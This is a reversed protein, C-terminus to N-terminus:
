RSSAPRLPPLTEPMPSTPTLYLNAFESEVKPTPFADSLNDNQPDVRLVERMFIEPDYKALKVNIMSADIMVAQVTEDSHDSRTALATAMRRTATNHAHVTHVFRAHYTFPDVRKHVEELISGTARFNLFVVINRVVVLENALVDTLLDLTLELATKDLPPHALWGPEEELKYEDCNFYGPFWFWKPVSPDDRYRTQIDMAVKLLDPIRLVICEVVMQQAVVSLAHEVDASLEGVLRDDLRDNLENLKAIATRFLTQWRNRAVNSPEADDLSGSRGRKTDTPDGTSFPLATISYRQAEQRSMRDVVPFQTGLIRGVDISFVFCRRAQGGAASTNTWFDFGPDKAKHSSRKGDKTTVVHRDPTSEIEYATDGEQAKYGLPALKLKIEAMLRDRISSLSQRLLDESRRIDDFDEMLFSNRWVWTGLFEDRPVFEARGLWDMFSMSWKNAYRMLKAGNASANDAKSEFVEREPEPVFEAGQFPPPRYMGLRFDYEIKQQSGPYGLTQAVCIAVTDLDSTKSVMWEGFSGSGSPPGKASANRFLEIRVSCLPSPEADGMDQVSMFVFMRFEPDAQRASKDQVIRIVDPLEGRAGDMEQKLRRLSERKEDPSLGRFAKGLPRALRSLDPLM